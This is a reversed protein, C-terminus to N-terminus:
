PIRRSGTARPPSPSLYLRLSGPSATNRRQSAMTGTWPAPTPAVARSRSLLPLRPPCSVTLQAGAAASATILSTFRTV